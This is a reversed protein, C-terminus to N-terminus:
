VKKHVGTGRMFSAVWTYLIGIVFILGLIPLLNWQWNTQAIAVLILLAWFLVMVFLAANQGVSSDWTRVSM